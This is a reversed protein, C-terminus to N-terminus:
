REAMFRYGGFPHMQVQVLWENGLGLALRLEDRRFGARISLQMDHHQVDNLEAVECLLRGMWRYVWFRAPEAALILRTGSTIKSGLHCLEQETLHHFFLNALVVESDPLGSELVNGSLWGAVKPWHLPRPVLDVAQLEEETCLGAKLLRLSLAGDGAGLETIKWGKQGHRRLMREIWRHNGMAGNVICMEERARVARQDDQPLLDLLEPLIQRHKM